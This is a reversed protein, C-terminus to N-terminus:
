KRRKNRIYAVVGGVTVGAALLGLISPETVTFNDEVQAYASDGLLLLAVAPAIKTGAKQIGQMAKTKKAM